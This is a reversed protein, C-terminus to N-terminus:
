PAYGRKFLRSWDIGSLASAGLGALSARNSADRAAQANANASAIQNAGGVDLPAPSGFNPMNVGGRSLAILQALQGFNQSGEDLGLRRRALEASTDTNYRGLSTNQDIGYRQLDQGRTTAGEGFLQSRAQLARTLYDGAQQHGIGQAQFAANERTANQNREMMSVANNWAESGPQLGQNTLRTELAARATGFDKDLFQTAGRYAADAGRQSAATFDTDLAPLQGDAGPKAMDGPPMGGGPGMTGTAPGTAPDVAMPPLGGGPAGPAAPQAPPTPGGFGDGPGQYLAGGPKSNDNLNPPPIEGGGGRSSIPAKLNDLATRWNALANPDGAARAAAYQQALQQQQDAYFSAFTHGDTSRMDYPSETPPPPPNEYTPAPAGPPTMAGGGAGAGGMTSYDTPGGPPKSAMSTPAYPDAVPGMAGGMTSYDPTAGAPKKQLWPPANGIPQPAQPAQQVFSPPAYPLQSAM